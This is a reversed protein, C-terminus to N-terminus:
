VISSASYQISSTASYKISGKLVTSRARLAREETWATADVIFYYEIKLFHSTFKSFVIQKDELIKSETIHGEEQLLVSTSEAM